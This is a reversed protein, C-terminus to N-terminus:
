WGPVSRRIGIRVLKRHAPASKSMGSKWVIATESIPAVPSFLADSTLYVRSPFTVDKQEVSHDRAGDREELIIRPSLDRPYQMWTTLRLPDTNGAIWHLLLHAWVSHRHIKAREHIQIIPVPSVHVRLPLKHVLESHEVPSVQRHLNKLTASPSVASNAM